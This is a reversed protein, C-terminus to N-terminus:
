EFLDKLHDGNNGVKKEVKYFSQMKNGCLRSIIPGGNNGFEGGLGLGSGHPEVGEVTVRALHEVGAAVALRGVNAALAWCEIDIGECGRALAWAERLKCAEGRSELARLERGSAGLCGLMRQEEGKTGKAGKEGM